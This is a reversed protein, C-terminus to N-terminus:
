LTIKQTKNTKNYSLYKIEYHTPLVHAVDRGLYYNIWMNKWRENTLLRILILYEWNYDLVKDIM